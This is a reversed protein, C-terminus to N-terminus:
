ASGGIVLNMETFEDEPTEGEIIRFLKDVVKEAIERKSFDITTLTPSTISAYASNDSGIIAVDDPIRLNLKKFYKMLQAALFDNGVIFATPRSNKGFKTMMEFVSKYISEITDTHVCVFSEEVHLNNKELTEVYAKVRFDDGHIGLTKYKVPPIYAIREHGKLILYDMSKMVGNYFNPAVTVIRPDLGSYERTKFLVMPINNAAIQNYQDVSFRNSTM